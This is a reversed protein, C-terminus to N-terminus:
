GGVSMRSPKSTKSPSPPPPPGTTTPVDVRSPVPYTLCGLRLLLSGCIEKSYNYIKWPASTEVRPDSVPIDVQGVFTPIISECRWLSFRLDEPPFLMNDWYLTLDTHFDVDDLKPHLPNKSGWKRPSRSELPRGEGSAISMVIYYEFTDYVGSSLIENASRIECVIKGFKSPRILTSVSPKLPLPLMTYHDLHKSLPHEEPCDHSLFSVAHPRHRDSYYCSFTQDADTIRLRRKNEKLKSDASILLDLMSVKRHDMEMLAEIICHSLLGRYRKPCPPDKVKWDYSTENSKCSTFVFVGPGVFDASTDAVGLPDTYVGKYQSPRHVDVRGISRILSRSAYWGGTGSGASAWTDTPKETIRNTRVIERGDRGPEIVCALPIITQVDAADLVCVFQVGAPLTGIAAHTEDSYILNPRRISSTVRM